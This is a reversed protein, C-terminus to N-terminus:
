HNDLVEVNIQSSNIKNTVILIAIIFGRVDVKMSNQATLMPTLYAPLTM